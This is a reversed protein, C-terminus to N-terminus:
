KKEFICGLCKDLIFFIGLFMISVLFNVRFNIKLAM